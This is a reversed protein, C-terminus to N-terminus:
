LRGEECHFGNTLRVLERGSDAGRWVVEGAQGCHACAFKIHWERAIM